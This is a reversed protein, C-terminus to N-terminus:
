NRGIERKKLGGRSGPRDAKGLGIRVTAHVRVAKGFSTFSLHQGMDVEREMPKGTLRPGFKITYNVRARHGPSVLARWM